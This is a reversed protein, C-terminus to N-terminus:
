KDDPIYRLINGPQMDLVACLKDLADISPIHGHRLAQLTAESLIKERRVRSTNYGYDKLTKVVDFKLEIM